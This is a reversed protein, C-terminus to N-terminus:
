RNSLNPHYPADDDPKPLFRGDKPSRDIVRNPRRGRMKAARLLSFNGAMIHHILMEGDMEAEEVLKNMMARILADGFRPPIIERWRTNLIPDIRFKRWSSFRRPM